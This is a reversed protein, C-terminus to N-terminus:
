YFKTSVAILKGEPSIVGRHVENIIDRICVNNPYIKRITKILHFKQPKSLEKWNTLRNKM